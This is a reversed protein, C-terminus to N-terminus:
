GCEPLLNPLASLYNSCLRGLNKATSSLDRPTLDWWSTQSSIGLLSLFSINRKVYTGSSFAINHSYTLMQNRGATDIETEIVWGRIRTTYLWHAVDRTKCPDGLLPALGKLICQRLDRRIDPASMIWDPQGLDMQLERETPISIVEGCRYVWAQDEPAYSEDLIRTAEPNRRKVLAEACQLQESTPLSKLFALLRPVTGSEFLELMPFRRRVEDHFTHLGWYYHAVEIKEASHTTQM